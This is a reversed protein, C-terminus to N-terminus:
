PEEAEVTVSTEWTNDCVGVGYFVPLEVPDEFYDWCNISSFSKAYVADITTGCWLYVSMENTGLNNYLEFRIYPYDGYSGYEWRCSNSGSQTLLYEGGYTCWDCEIDPITVRFEYPTEGSLGAQCYTCEDGACGAGTPCPDPSPDYASVAVSVSSTDCSVGSASDFDLSEDSWTSCDPYEEGLNASFIMNETERFSSLTLRLIYDGSEYALELSLHSLECKPYNDEATCLSGFWTDTEGVRAVYWTGNIDV